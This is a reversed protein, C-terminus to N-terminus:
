GFRLWVLVRSRLSVPHHRASVSLFAGTSDASSTRKGGVWRLEEEWNKRLSWLRSRVDSHPHLSGPMHVPFVLEIVCGVGARPAPGGARGRVRTEKERRGHM